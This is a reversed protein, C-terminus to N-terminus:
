NIRVKDGEKMANVEQLLGDKDFDLSSPDPSHRKVKRLGAEELAKRKMTRSKAEEHSEFYLSKRQLERNLHSDRELCPTVTLKRGSNKLVTKSDGLLKEEKRKNKCKLKQM